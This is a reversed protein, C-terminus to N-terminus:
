SINPPSPPFLLLVIVKLLGEPESTPVSPASNSTTQPVPSWLPRRLAGANRRSWNGDRPRKRTCKFAGKHTLAKPPPPPESYGSIYVCRFGVGGGREAKGRERPCLHPATSGRTPPNLFCKWTPREREPNPLRGGAQPVKEGSHWARTQLCSSPGVTLPYPALGRRLRLCRLLEDLLWEQALRQSSGLTPLFPSSLAKVRLEAVPLPGLHHSPNLHTGWGM